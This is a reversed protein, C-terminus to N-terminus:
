FGVRTHPHLIDVARKLERHVTGFDGSSLPQDYHEARGAPKNARFVVGYLPFPPSFPATDCFEAINGQIGLTKLVLPIGTELFRKAQDVFAPFGQKRRISFKEDVGELSMAIAGCNRRMSSLQEKTMGIGTTTLNPVMGSDRLFELLDALRPHVVPE